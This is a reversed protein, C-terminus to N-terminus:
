KNVKLQNYRHIKIKLMDVYTPKMKNASSATHSSILEFLKTPPLNMLPNCDVDRRDRSAFELWNSLSWFSVITVSWFPCCRHESTIEGHTSIKPLNLHAVHVMQPCSHIYQLVRNPSVTRSVDRPKPPQGPCPDLHFSGQFNWIQWNNVSTQRQNMRGAALMKKLMFNAGLVLSLYSVTTLSAARELFYIFM